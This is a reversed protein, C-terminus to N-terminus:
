SLCGCLLDDCLALLVYDTVAANFGEPNAAM